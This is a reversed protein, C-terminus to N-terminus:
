VGFSALRGTCGVPILLIWVGRDDWTLFSEGAESVPDIADIVRPSSRAADPSPVKGAIFM